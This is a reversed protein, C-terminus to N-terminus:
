IQECNKELDLKRFDKSIFVLISFGAIFICICIIEIYLKDFSENNETLSLGVIGPIM